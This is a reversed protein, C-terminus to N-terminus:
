FNMTSVKSAFGEKCPVTQVAELEKFTASSIVGMPLLSLSIFAQGTPKANPIAAASPMVSANPPAPQVLSCVTSEKSNESFVANNRM